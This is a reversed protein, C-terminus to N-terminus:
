LINYQRAREVAQTRNKAGLKERIKRVHTKVTGVAVFLKAAIDQNSLGQAVLKLVELERDTLPDILPSQAVDNISIDTVPELSVLHTQSLLRDVVASLSLKEGREQAAQFTNPALKQELEILVPHSLNHIDDSMAPHQAVCALLEVPYEYRGTSALLRALGVIIELVLPIREQQWCMQLAQKFAALAEGKEGLATCAHGLNVLSTPLGRIALETQEWIEIAEHCLRRSEAFEGLKFTTFALNSLITAIQRLNGSEKAIDLAQQMLRKSEEYHQEASAVTSLNMYAMARAEHQHHAEAVELAQSFIKRAEALQGTQHEVVGISNLASVVDFAPGHAQALTLKEQAYHKSLPLDGQRSAVITLITLASSAGRWDKLASFLQLNEEALQKATTLNGQLNEIKSLNHGAYVMTYPNRQQRGLRLSEELYVRAQDTQGWFAFKSSLTLLIAALAFNDGIERYIHISEEALPMYNEIPVNLSAHGYTEVIVALAFAIGSQDRADRCIALSGELYALAQQAQDSLNCAVGLWAQLYAQVRLSDPVHDDPEWHEVAYQFIELMVSSHQRIRLFYGLSEIASLILDARQTYIAHQWAPRINDMMQEITELAAIMDSGKLAAQQEALTHLFYAAHRDRSEKLVAVSEALKDYAFEWIVPHLSYWGEAHVQVMSKDVLAAIGEVSAEAVQQSMPFSFRGRLVTLRKLLSQEDLSLMHWSHDFIARLSTHRQSLSRSRSTLNGLGHELQALLTECSIARVWAAALEIGLPLGEVLRCIQTVSSWNEAGLSFDPQVYHARDVFLAIAGTPESEAIQVSSPVTLGRVEYVLEDPLNLTERSTVLIQVHPAHSLLEQIFMIGDLLHEMNDLILLLHRDRLFGCVQEEPSGQEYVVQIGLAEGIILPIDAPNEISALEVLHVGHSYQEAQQAAIEFALRSKGVGGLGVLTLLRCNPDALYRQIDALEQTRDILRTQTHSRFRTGM